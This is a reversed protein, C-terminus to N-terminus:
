MDDTQCLYVRTLIKFINGIRLVNKFVIMYRDHTSLFDQCVSLRCVELCKTLFVDHTLTFFPRLFCIFIKNHLTMESLILSM